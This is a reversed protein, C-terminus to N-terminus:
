VTVFLEAIYVNLAKSIKVLNLISTNIVGRRIRTIQSIEANIEFALDKQTIEKCVYNVFEKVELKLQWGIKMKCFKLLKCCADKSM